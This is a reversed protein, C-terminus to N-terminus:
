RLHEALVYVRDRTWEAGEGYTFIPQLSGGEVELGAQRMAEDKRAIWELEEATLAAMADADLREKLRSWISNLEGDWLAYRQAALENMEAQTLSSQTELQQRLANSQEEVAALEEDITTIKHSSFGQQAAVNCLGYFPLEGTIPDGFGRMWNLCEESLAQAPTGPLYFLFDEGGDLGYPVSYIYTMGDKVEQTEPERELELQELTVSYTHEDVRVPQSFKGTFDCLYQVEPDSDLYQGAFTGDAAIRLLTQWGGAGSAFCFELDSLDAFAFAAEADQEPTSGEPAEIAPPPTSAGPAPPEGGSGCGTLLCLAAALALVWPTRKKM